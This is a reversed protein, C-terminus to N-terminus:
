INVQATFIGHSTHTRLPTFPRAHGLGGDISVTGGVSGPLGCVLGCGGCLCPRSSLNGPYSPRETGGQLWGAPGRGETPQKQRCYSSWNSITQVGPIPSSIAEM